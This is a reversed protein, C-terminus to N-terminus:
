DLKTASQIYSLMPKTRIVDVPNAEASFPAPKDMPIIRGPWINPAPLDIDTYSQMLYSLLDNQEEYFSVHIAGERVTCLLSM